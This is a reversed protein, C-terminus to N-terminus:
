RRSAEIGDINATTGTTDTPTFNVYFESGKPFRSLLAPDNAGSAINREDTLKLTVVVENGLGGPAVAKDVIAHFRQNDRDM